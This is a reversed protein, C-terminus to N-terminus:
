RALTLDLCTFITM